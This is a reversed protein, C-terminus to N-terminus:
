CFHDAVVSAAFSEPKIKPLFGNSKILNSIEKIMEKTPGNQGIDAHIYEFQYNIEPAEKQILEKIEERLNVALECSLLVEQLIREKLSHFKRSYSLKKAFFRGGAGKRLVVIVVLFNNERESSDCGVVIEYNKKPDQLFYDLIEKLVENKTLNGKTLNFFLGKEFVEAM